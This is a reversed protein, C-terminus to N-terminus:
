GHSQSVLIKWFTGVVSLFLFFFFFLSYMWSYFLLMIWYSTSLFLKFDLGLHFIINKISSFSMGKIYFYGVMFYYFLYWFFFFVFSEELVTPVTGLTSSWLCLFLSFAFHCFPSIFFPLLGFPLSLVQGLLGKFVTLHQVLCFNPLFTQVSELGWGGWSPVEM